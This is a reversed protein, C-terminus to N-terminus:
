RLGDKTGPQLPQRCQRCVYTQQKNQIRKHRTTSLLIEEDCGCRYAFRRQRRVPVETMDFRHCRTAPKDFAHMIRKWAPGHGIGDCGHLILAVAHAIEHPVTQGAFSERNRRAIALNFRIRVPMVRSRVRQYQVQGACEGNLDFAIPPLDDNLLSLGTVPDTFLRRAQQWWDDAAALLMRRCAADSAPANMFASHVPAGPRNASGGPPPMPQRIRCTRIDRDSQYVRIMCLSLALAPLALGERRSESLLWTQNGTTITSIATAPYKQNVM